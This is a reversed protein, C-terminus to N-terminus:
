KAKGKLIFYLIAISSCGRIDLGHFEFGQRIEIFRMPIGFGLYHEYHCLTQCLLTNLLHRNNTM